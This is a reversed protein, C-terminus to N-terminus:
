YNFNQLEKKLRILPLGIINEPEGKIEKVFRSAIGQVAYGGSKDYPEDTHAYWIIEEDSLERFYVKSKEIYSVKKNKNIITVGTIVLNENNSLTHLIEIEQNIDKPKYIVKNNITVITDSGIVTENSNDYFVSKAKQESLILPIKDIPTDEPVYEETNSPIITFNDVIRKLLIKRRPSSSALILM